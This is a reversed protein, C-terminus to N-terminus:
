KAPPVLRHVFVVTGFDNPDPWPGMYEHMTERWGAEAVLELFRRAPQRGPHALLVVGDPAVLQNLVGLLPRIDRQEYLVDAALVVAFPGAAVLRAIDAADRWNLQMTQPEQGAHHLCTYRTLILSEPAYDTALLDAGAALAIAATIGVGSGLEVVRKGQVLAPDAAIESGLGVGSPWLEAWYPLNQEPDDVIRDLLTDTDIPRIVRLPTAIGRVVVDEEQLAGTQGLAAILEQARRTRDMREGREVM